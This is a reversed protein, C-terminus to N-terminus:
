ILVPTGDLIDLSQVSLTLGEVKLLEVLEHLQTRGIRRARRSCAAGAAGNRRPPSV